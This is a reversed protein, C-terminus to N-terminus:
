AAHRRVGLRTLGVQDAVRHNGATNDFVTIEHSERNAVFVRGTSPQVAVGWAFNLSGPDNRTGRKGWSM